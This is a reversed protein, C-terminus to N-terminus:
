TNSALLLTPTHEYLFDWCRVLQCTALMSPTRSLTAPSAAAGVSCAPTKRSPLSWCTTVAWASFFPFFVVLKYPRRLRLRIWSQGFNGFILYSLSWFISESLKVWMKSCAALTCVSNLIALWMREQAKIFLLIVSVNMLLKPKKEKVTKNGHGTCVSAGIPGM